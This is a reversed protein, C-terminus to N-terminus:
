QPRPEAYQARRFAALVLAATVTAAALSALNLRVIGRDVVLTLLGGGFFAGAAGAVLAGVRGGPFAEPSLTSAVLGISAGLTIWSVIAIV